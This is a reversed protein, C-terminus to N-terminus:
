CGKKLGVGELTFAVGGALYRSHCERDLWEYFWFHCFYIAVDQQEMSYQSFHLASM